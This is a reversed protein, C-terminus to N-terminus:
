KVKGKAILVKLYRINDLMTVKQQATFIADLPKRDRKWEGERFLKNHAGSSIPLSSDISVIIDKWKGLEYVEFPNPLGLIHILFGNEECFSAIKHKELLMPRYFLHYPIGIYSIDEIKAYEELCELYDEVSTGQLVGMLEFPIRDDFKEYLKTLFYISAKLTADKDNVTDPLVVINPRLEEILNFYTDIEISTGEEFAGNDLISFRSPDEEHLKEHFDKYAKNQLCYSAIIFDYDTHSHLQPLLSLPMECALNM